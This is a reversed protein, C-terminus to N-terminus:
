FTHEVHYLSPLPAEQLYQNDHAKEFVCISVFTVIEEREDDNCRGTQSHYKHFPM